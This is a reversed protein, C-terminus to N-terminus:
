LFLKHCVSPIYISSSYIVCFTMVLLYAIVLLPQSKSSIGRANPDSTREVHLREDAGAGQRAQHQEQDAAWQQAHSLSGIVFVCTGLAGVRASTHPMVKHLGDCMRNVLAVELYPHFM